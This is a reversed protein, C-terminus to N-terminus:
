AIGTTVGEFIGSLIEVEDEEHRPTSIDSQGPRRRGLERQIAEVSLRVGAPCGEVVGGVAVGHSEGFSM